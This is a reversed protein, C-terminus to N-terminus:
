LRELSVDDLLTPTSGPALWFRLWRAPCSADVDITQGSAGVSPPAVPVRACSLEARLQKSSEGRWALRYRGPQLPVLQSLVPITVTGGNALELAQGIKGPVSRVSLDGHGAVAWEFPVRQRTPIFAEFGADAIAGAAGADPCHDRWVAAGQLPDIEALAITIRTVPECGLHRGLRAAGLLVESRALVREAGAAGDIQAYARAWNAGQAIRAALGARGAESAELRAAAQAMAPAQPYQRALVDFRLVAAPMDGAAMATELWYLQTLPERWGFRAAVRFARDAQRRDGRALLATGYLAASGPEVPDARLAALAPNLAPAPLGAEVFQRARAAPTVARLWGPVWEGLALQSRASRDFASATALLSYSLFAACVVLRVLWM